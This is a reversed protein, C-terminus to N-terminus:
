KEGELPRKELIEGVSFGHLAKEPATFWDEDRRRVEIAALFRDVEDDSQQSGAKLSLNARIRDLDLRVLLSRKTHVELEAIANQLDILPQALPSTDWGRRQWDAAIRVIAERASQLKAVANGVSM